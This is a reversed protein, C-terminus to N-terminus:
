EEMQAFTIAPADMMQEDQGDEGNDDNKDENSEDEAGDEQEGHEDDADEDPNQHREHHRDGSSPGEDSAAVAKDSDAIQKEKVVNSGSVSAKERPVSPPLSYGRKAKQYINLDQEESIDMEDQATAVPSHAVWGRAERRLGKFHDDLARKTAQM